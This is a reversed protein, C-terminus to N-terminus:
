QWPFFGGEKDSTAEETVEEVIPEQSTSITISVYSNVNVQDGPLPIQALVIGPELDIAYETDINGLYLGKAALVARAQVQPRGLLNPVVVKRKGSSVILNVTRGVKVMRGVEPQQSVVRGEAYRMDYVSGAEKGKLKLSDLEMLATKLRKGTLDPVVVEPIGTFYTFYIYGGIGPLLVISIILPIIIQPSPFKFRLIVLSILISFVIVFILYYSFYEILM